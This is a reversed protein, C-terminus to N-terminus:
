AALATHNREAMGWAAILLADARNADMKRALLGAVNPYLRTAMQRASDPSPGCRHFAQWTQPRVLTMPIGMAAVIGQIAGFSVGFRFMSTVGQKPMPGVKEIFAHAYPTHEALLGHLGHLDLEARLAKKGTVGIRHAPLDTVLIVEEDSSIRPGDLIALGGQLGPDIGIIRMRREKGTM